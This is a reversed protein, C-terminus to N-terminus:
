KLKRKQPRPQDLVFETLAFAIIIPLAIFFWIGPKKSFKLIIAEIVLVALWIISNRKRKDMEM